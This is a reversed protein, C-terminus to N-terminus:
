LQEKRLNAPMPVRRVRLASAFEYGGYPWRRIAFPLLYRRLRLACKLDPSM